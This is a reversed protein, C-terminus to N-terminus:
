RSSCSRIVVITDIGSIRSCTLLAKYMLGERSVRDRAWISVRTTLGRSSVLLSLVVSTVSTMSIGCLHLPINMQGDYLSQVM